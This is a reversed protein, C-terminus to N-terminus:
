GHSRVKGRNLLKQCHHLLSWGSSPITLPISGTLSVQDPGLDKVVGTWSGSGSKTLALVGRDISKQINPLHFTCQSSSCVPMFDRSLLVSTAGEAEVEVLWDQGERLSPNPPPKTLRCGVSHRPPNPSAICSNCWLSVRM